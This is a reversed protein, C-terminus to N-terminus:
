LCAQEKLINCEQALATFADFLRLGGQCPPLVLLERVDDGPPSQGTLQQIFMGFIIDELRQFHSITNEATRVLFTWKGMLGYSFTSLAARPQVQDESSLLELQNKWTSVAKEM